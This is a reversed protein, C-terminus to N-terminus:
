KRTIPGKLLLNPFEHNIEQAMAEVTRRVEWQAHDNFQRLRQLNIMGYLTTDYHFSRICANSVAYEAEATLGADNLEDWLARALALGQKFLDTLGAEEIVPPIIYGHRHTPTGNFTVASRHRLLQHYTVESVNLNFSFHVRKFAKPVEDHAGIGSIITRYMQLQEDLPIRYLAHEIEVAGDGYETAIGELVRRIAEAESYDVYLLTATPLDTSSTSCEQIIDSAVALEYRKIKQPEVYRVLTPLVAQTEEAIRRAMQRVEDQHSSLMNVVGDRIARGNGVVALNSLTALPLVYRADEFALPRAQKKTKGRAMHFETLKEVLEEFIDYIAHMIKEFNHSLDPSDKVPNCWEGRAPMQYRQSYEIFSLYPNSQELQATAIRSVKEVGIKASALEAVSSHGFDLVWKQHFAAAKEAGLLDDQIIEAMNERFSKPSRSVKAFVVAAVEEPLGTIAYINKDTNSVFDKVSTM